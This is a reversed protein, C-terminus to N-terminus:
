KDNMVNMEVPYWHNKKWASFLPLFFSNLVSLLHNFMKLNQNLEFSRLKVIPIYSVTLCTRFVQSQVKLDSKTCLKGRLM